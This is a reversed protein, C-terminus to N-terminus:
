SFAMKFLGIICAAGVFVEIMLLIETPIVGISDSIMQLVGNDGLLGFGTLMSGIFSYDSNKASDLELKPLNGGTYGAQYEGYDSGIFTSENSVDGSENDWVYINYQDLIPAYSSVVLDSLIESTGIYLRNQLTIVVCGTDYNVIEGYDVGYQNRELFDVQNLEFDTLYVDNGDADLYKYRIGVISDMVYKEFLSTDNEWYIYIKNELSARYLSVNKPQPVKVNEKAIDECNYLYSYDGTQLYLLASEEDKAIPQNCYQEQGQTTALLDDPFYQPFKNSYAKFKRLYHSSGHYYMMEMLQNECLQLEGDDNLYYTKMKYSRYEKGDISYVTGDYLVSVTDDEFFYANAVKESTRTLCRMNEIGSISNKCAHICLRYFDFTDLSPGWNVDYDESEDTFWEVPEYAYVNLTMAFLMIMFLM